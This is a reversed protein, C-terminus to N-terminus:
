GGSASLHQKFSRLGEKLRPPLLSCAAYLASRTTIKEGLSSIFSRRAERDRGQSFYWYGLSFWAAAVLRDPSEGQSVLSDLCRERIREAVRVYDLLMPEIAKTVNGEHVRRLGLVEPLCVVPRRAAIRVWLELDEGYRIDPSFGGSELLMARPSLILSTSVFNTRALQAVANPVPRGDLELFFDLSGRAAFWSPQITNGEGDIAAMDATVLGLGPQRDFAEMQREIAHPLWVDDADLFAIYAGQALEIGRNRTASPGANAQRFYRIGTGLARVVDATDDTSGDDVIIIESVPHTQARISRVAEPLLNARNYAPIVASVCPM